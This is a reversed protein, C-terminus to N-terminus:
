SCDLHPSNLRPYPTRFQDVVGHRNLRSELDGIMRTRVLLKESAIAALEPLEERKDVNPM